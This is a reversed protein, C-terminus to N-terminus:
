IRDDDIGTVTEELWTIVERIHVRLSKEGINVLVSSFNYRSPNTCDMRM